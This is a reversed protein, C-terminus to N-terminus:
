KKKRSILWLVGVVAAVIGALMWPNNRNITLGGNMFTTSGNSSDGSKAPGAAGGTMSPIPAAM